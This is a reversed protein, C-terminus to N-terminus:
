LKLPHPSVEAFANIMPNLRKLNEASYSLFFHDTKKKKKNSKFVGLAKVILSKVAV